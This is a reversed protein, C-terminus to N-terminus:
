VDALMPRYNSGYIRAGMSRLVLDRVLPPLSRMRDRRRTQEQIWRVRPMRRRTFEPVLHAADEGSAVLEALVLADEFALAAGSAMNPSAAHAADGILLARGVGPPDQLIDEIAAFHVATGPDLRSLVSRAPEAYERFRDRLREVREAPPDDLPEDVAADCYCYAEDRGVPVLLFTGRRGLMATWATVEPCRALFRWAVQGCYRPRSEGFLLQRVSSRIGDAGVVLDYARTAGDSFRVLVEGGREEIRDVTTALRVAASGVADLLLGVLDSRRVCVCRGCGNWYREVDVEFLEKGRDNVFRQTRIAAGGRATPDPVGIAALARVANGVLYLGAGHESWRDRREVVDPSLGRRRLALALSLGALGAGVIAIREIRGSV